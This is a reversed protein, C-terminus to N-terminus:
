GGGSSGAEVEAAVINSEGENAKAGDATAEKGKTSRSGTSAAGDDDYLEHEEIYQVVPEPVLYRISMDRRLFLRVKTSSIDNQVLQQIVWINSKWPQLTSLAEDIDTGTRQFIRSITILM